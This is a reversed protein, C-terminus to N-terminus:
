EQTLVIEEFSRRDRETKESTSYGLPIVAIPKLNGPIKLEKKLENEDFSGVWVSALGADVIALQLYSAFITADQIAYLTKGREGYRAGSKELDSFIVINVPADFSTLKKKTIVVKYSQLNGASPALKALEIIEKVTEDSVDKPQFERISHRKTVAERFEM